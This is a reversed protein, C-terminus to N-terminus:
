EYNSKGMVACSTIIMKLTPFHAVGRTTLLVIALLVKQAFETMPEREPFENNVLETIEEVKAQSLSM